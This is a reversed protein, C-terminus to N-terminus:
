ANLIFYPFDVDGILFYGAMEMVLSFELSGVKVPSLARCKSLGMSADSSLRTTFSSFAPFLGPGSPKVGM